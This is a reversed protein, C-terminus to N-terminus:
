PTYVAQGSVSLAITGRSKDSLKQTNLAQNFLKIKKKFNDTSGCIVDLRDQYNFTINESNEFSIYKVGDIIGEETIATLCKKVVNFIEENELTVVSGPNVQVVTVDEIVPVDYEIKDTVELVKLKEDVLVCKEGVEFFGAPICEKINM